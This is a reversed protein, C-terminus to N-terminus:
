SPSSLQVSTSRQGATPRGAVRAMPNVTENKMISALIHIANPSYSRALSSIMTYTYRNAKCGAKGTNANVHESKSKRGM